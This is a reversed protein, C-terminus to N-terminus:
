RETELMNFKKIIQFFQKYYDRPDKRKIQKNIYIKLKM